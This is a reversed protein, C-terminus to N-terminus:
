STVKLQLLTTPENNPDAGIGVPTAGDPNVTVSTQTGDDTTLKATAKHGAGAVKGDGDIEFVAPVRLNLIGTSALVKFCVLGQNNPGIQDTTWVRMVGVNHQPSTSCDALVIHGDGSILVINEAQEIQAANPYSGDEVISGGNDQGPVDAPVSRPLSAGGAVTAAKALGGGIAVVALAAGTVALMPLLRM